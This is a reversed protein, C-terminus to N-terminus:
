RCLAPERTQLQSHRSPERSSLYRLRNPGPSGGTQAQFRHLLRHILRVPGIPFKLYCEAEHPKFLIRHGFREIGEQLLLYFKISYNKSFFIRAATAMYYHFIKKPWM